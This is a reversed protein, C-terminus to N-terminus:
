ENIAILSPLYKNNGTFIICFSPLRLGFTVIIAVFLLNFNGPIM